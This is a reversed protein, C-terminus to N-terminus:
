QEGRRFFKEGAKFLKAFSEQRLLSIKGPKAVM